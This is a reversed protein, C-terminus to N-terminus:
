QTDEERHFEDHGDVRKAAGNMSYILLKVTELAEKQSGFQKTSLLKEEGVGNIGSKTSVLYEDQEVPTYEIQITEDDDYVWQILDNQPHNTDHLIETWGPPYYDIHDTNSEPM